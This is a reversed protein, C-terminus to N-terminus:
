EFTRSFHLFSPLKIKMFSEHKKKKSSDQFIKKCFYRRISERFSQRKKIKESIPNNNSPDQAPTIEAEEFNEEFLCKLGSYTEDYSTPRLSAKQDSNDEELDYFIDPSEWSPLNRLTTLLFNQKRGPERLSIEWFTDAIDGVFRSKGRRTQKKLQRLCSEELETIHDSWLTGFIHGNNWESSELIVLNWDKGFKHSEKWTHELQNTTPTCTKFMELNKEFIDEVEETRDIRDLFMERGCDFSELGGIMKLLNADTWLFSKETASKEYFDVYRAWSPSTQECKAWPDVDVNEFFGDDSKVEFIDVRELTEIFNKLEALTWKTEYKPGQCNADDEADWTLGFKHGEKWDGRCVKERRSQIDILYDSYSHQVTFEIDECCNDQDESDEIDDFQDDHDLFIDPSDWSPLNQIEEAYSGYGEHELSIRWFAEAVGFDTVRSRRRSKVPLEM